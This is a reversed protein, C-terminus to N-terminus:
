DNKFTKKLITLETNSNRYKINNSIMILNNFIRLVNYYIKFIFLTNLKNNHSKLEKSIIGFYYKYLYIDILNSFVHLNKKNENELKNFIDIYNKYLFKISLSWDKSLFLQMITKNQGFFLESFKLNKNKIKLFGRVLYLEDIFKSKGFISMLGCGYIEVLYNESIDDIKEYVKRLIESRNVAFELVFYNNIFSSFRDIALDNTYGQFKNFYDTFKCKNYENSILMQRTRGFASSYDQNDNLFNICKNVNKIILFDDDGTKVCYEEKVFSLLKKTSQGYLFKQNYEPFHFLKIKIKKQFKKLNKKIENHIKEESADGIYITGRFNLSSYYSFIREILKSNNKTSIIIALNNM